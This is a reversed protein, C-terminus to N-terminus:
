AFLRHVVPACLLIVPFALTHCSFKVTNIGGGHASGHHPSPAKISFTDLGKEEVWKMGERHLKM